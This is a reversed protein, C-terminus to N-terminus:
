SGCTYHFSAEEFQQEEPSVTFLRVWRPNTASGLHISWTWVVTTKTGAETFKLTRKDESAGDSKSFNYIITVPGNVTINASYRYFVNAPCGFEPDRVINYTVSTIGYDFDPDSSVVIDVYFPTDYGVGFSSGGPTQLKWFGQHNGEATPAILVVPVDVTDGPLAQQPFNYVFGGGMVDGDWFVIKYATTWTCSSTNKIHWIKTFQQGPTMITGDPVTEGILSASMCAQEGGAAVPLTAKPTNTTTSGTPSPVPTKTAVATQTPLAQETNQAQVTLAVSTAIEQESAATGCAASLISLVTLVSLLNLKSRISM